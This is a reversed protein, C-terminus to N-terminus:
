MTRQVRSLKWTSGGKWAPAHLQQFYSSSNSPVDLDFIDRRGNWFVVGIAEEQSVGEESADFHIEAAVYGLVDEQVQRVTIWEEGLGEKRM